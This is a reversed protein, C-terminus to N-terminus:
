REAGAKIWSEFTAIETASLATRNKPMRAVACPATGKLTALLMSNAPDGKIVRTRGACASSAVGVLAAYAADESAMRLDGQANATHCNSCKSSIIAYVDSFKVAQQVM